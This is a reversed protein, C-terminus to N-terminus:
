RQETAKDTMDATRGAAPPEVDLEAGFDSYEIVTRVQAKQPGGSEAGDPAKVRMDMQQRRIRGDDDLWVDMPLTPGLQKKLQDAKARDGTGALKDVDITVRYRTTSTGGVQETGIKRVDKDTVGKAFGASEAPDNVQSSDGGARQAAKKLDIKIWPKKGPVKAQQEEPPKQYLIGDVVRQEIKQGGATLTMESDGEALDIVGQGEAIVSEGQATTRTTLKMRATQAEATRDYASRVAATGDEQAGPSKEAAKDRGATKGGPDSGDSGCAVLATCAVAGAMSVAGTRLSKRLWYM